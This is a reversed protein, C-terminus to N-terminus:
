AGGFHQEMRTRAYQQKRNREQRDRVGTIVREINPTNLTAERIAPEGTWAEIRVIALDAVDPSLDIGVASRGLQCAAVMSTGTGCFPDIVVGTGALTGILRRVWDVPKQYRSAEPMSSLALRFTDALEARGRRGQGHIVARDWTDGNPNYAGQPGYYLCLKASQLPEDRARDFAKTNVGGADWVLVYTPPGWNAIEAGIYHNNTFVFRYPIFAAWAPPPITDDFLPDWLLSSVAGESTALTMATDITAPDTSDGVILWHRGTRWIDGPQCRAPVIAPIKDGASPRPMAHGCPEIHETALPGIGRMRGILGWDRRLHDLTKVMM